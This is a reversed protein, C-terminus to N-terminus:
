SVMRSDMLAKAMFKGLLKFRNRIKSVNGIKANRALPAPFLGNSSYMYKKEHDMKPPILQKQKTQYSQHSSNKNYHSNSNNNNFENHNDRSPERIDDINSITNDANLLSVSSSEKGEGHENSPVLPASASVVEGRWLELDARQMERSVLAYFELTPGLGTGVENEYQIDLVTKSNTLENLIIESQRFLDDRSVTKRRRDLRPAAREDSNSLEPTSDLLRQLARDRDFSTVYFLLHRSDFPILFPCSYALQPLWSPLNGTMIVLPDQLQRTVKAALKSNIFESSPLAPHTVFSICNRYFWSWHRNIGFIARLLVIIEISSDHVTVNPPLRPCLYQDIPSSVYPTKGDIWLEDKKRTVPSRHHHSTALTSSSNRTSHRRGCNTTSSPSQQQVSSGSAVSQGQYSVSGDYAADQFHVPNLRLDSPNLQNTTMMSHVGLGGRINSSRKQQYMQSNSSPISMNSNTSLSSSQSSSSSQDTYPRYYIVHTETWMNSNGVVPIDSDEIDLGDSNDSLNSFQRIAQYVTMNYPLVHEGISLQLRHRGQPQTMVVMSDDLDDDSNNDDSNDASDRMKAYGRVTLYKEIAQVVALPDIKVPGGRWRRLNNCQPHRQLNCKLQHTNFFKLASVGRINGNGLGFFDHVRVPFQELQSICANLKAVLASFPSTDMKLEQEDLFLLMHRPDQPLGLFVSLFARIRNDRHSTGDQGQYSNGQSPQPCELSTLFKTLKSVLGSHILEFSSIDGESLVSKLQRLAEVTSVQDELMELACTLKNLTDMAPHSDQSNISPFSDSTNLSSEHTSYKEEFALAQKAVWELVREKTNNISPNTRGLSVSCSGGACATDTSMSLCNTGRSTSASSALPVSGSGLSARNGWRSWRAPHLNALIHRSSFGSSSTGTKHRSITTLSVSTSPTAAPQHVQPDQHIAMSTCHAQSPSSTVPLSSSLVTANSMNQNMGGTLYLPEGGEEGPQVVVSHRHHGPNAHRFALDLSADYISNTSQYHNSGLHNLGAVAPNTSTSSDAPPMISSRLSHHITSSSNIEHRDILSSSRKSSRCQHMPQSNQQTFHAPNFNSIGLKSEQGVATTIMTNVGGSHVHPLVNGAPPYVPTSQSFRHQGPNTPTFSTATDILINSLNSSQNCTSQALASPSSQKALNRFQHMVGERRFYISFVDPLKDMLVVAMQIAGVVIRQDSSALMTAIHGSVAHNKLLVRLLETPTYYVIRLLARLCKYRVSPGASSSYIEYLIGFLSSVFNHLVDQNKKIYAIRPDSKPSPNIHQSSCDTSVSSTIPQYNVKRQIPRSMGTDENIQQMTTFDISYTKGMTVLSVDEDGARHASDIVKNDICNYRHWNGRDDKWQWVVSEQQTSGGRSILQDIAFMGDEPLRPMLEGILSTIEYLEQPSRNVLEVHEVNKANTTCNPSSIPETLSSAISNITSTGVDSSSNSTVISQSTANTNSSKFGILLYRLTSVIDSSLLQIAIDPCSHCMVALMRIIMVFTSTSIISPTALLLQGFNVLLNNGAVEMLINPDCQYHEILRSFALCISEVSKKDTHTLHSSLTPLSEQIQPFEEITINQCCNAAIALASRQANISFFDLYTLCASVGKANLIAKSHRRSLMELATLSQEAVDMCQIAQLKELFSPVAEVVVSASRPLSEMMYTLARCAHNMIDFNHEMNLLQILSPVAQKVPFGALTDENGMVLLQCMEMVSQLQQGEDGHAQLGQVLQHAKSSSSSGITRHLLTQMRPGLAGLLHTPVGRAELIAQLRGMEVEDPENDGTVMSVAAFSPIANIGTAQNDTTAAASSTSTSPISLSSSQTTSHSPSNKSSSSYDMEGLHARSRKRPPEIASSTPGSTSARNITKSQSPLDLVSSSTHSRASASKRNQKSSAKPPGTITATKNPAGSSSASGSSTTVTNNCIIPVCLSNTTTSINTTTSTNVNAIITSSNIIRNGGSEPIAVITSQQGGQLDSNNSSSSSQQPHQQNRHHQQKQLESQRRLARSRSRTVIM